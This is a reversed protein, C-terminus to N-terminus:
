LQSFNLNSHCSRSSKAIGILIFVPSGVREVGHRSTLAAFVFPSVRMFFVSDLASITKDANKKSPVVLMYAEGPPPGSQSPILAGIVSGSM